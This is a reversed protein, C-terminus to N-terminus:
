LVLEVGRQWMQDVVMESMEGLAIVGRGLPLLGFGLPWFLGLPCIDVRVERRM